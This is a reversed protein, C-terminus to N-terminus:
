SSRWARGGSRFAIPRREFFRAESGSLVSESLRRLIHGCVHLLTSGDYRLSIQEKANQDFTDHRSLTRRSVTISQCSRVAALALQNRWSSRNRGRIFVLGMGRGALLQLFSEREM